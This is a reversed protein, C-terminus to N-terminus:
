VSCTCAFHIFYPCERVGFVFICELHILFRCLLGSVIFHKSSFMHFVRQCLNCCSRKWDMKCNNNMQETTDLEKRSWPSCCALGGQGNGVGPTAWVWTWQTLSAMWGDWGKEYRRSDKGADCDKWIVWSKADRPWLIPAEAEDDQTRGAFILPQSGKPNVLLPFKFFIFLHSSIIVM